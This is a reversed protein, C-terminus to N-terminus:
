KAAFKAEMEAREIADITNADGLDTSTGSFFAVAGKLGEIAATVAVEVPTGVTLPLFEQELGEIKSLAAEIQEATM